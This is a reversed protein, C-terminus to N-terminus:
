ADPDREFAAFEANVRMSEQRVRRSAEAMRQRRLEARKVQNMREIANRIYEARSVLCERALAGSTELLEDPLKLSITKM